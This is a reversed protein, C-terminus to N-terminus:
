SPHEEKWRGLLDKRHETLDTIEARPFTGMYASAEIQRLHSRVAGLDQGAFWGTIENENSGIADFLEGRWRFTWTTHYWADLQEPTAFFARDPDHPDPTLAEPVPADGERLLSVHPLRPDASVGYTHGRYVAYDAARHDM